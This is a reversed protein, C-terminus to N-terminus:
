IIIGYNEWNKRVKWMTEEDPYAVVAFKEGWYEGARPTDIPNTADILLRTGKNGGPGLRDKPHVTPDLASNWGPFQIIDKSSEVRFALTWFIRNLDYIDVYQDCVIINECMMNSLHSSWVNTAVQHVQGHYSNDMQVIFNAFGTSPDSNVGTVGTMREEILDWILASHSVSCIRHDENIPM